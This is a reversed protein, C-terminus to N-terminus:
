EIVENAFALIAPPLNLGLARAAKLNVVFQFTSPQEIPLTSPKEGKLIRDVYTAARRFHECYNLSYSMLGGLEVFTREQSMTPLRLRASHDVIRHMNGLTVSDVLVILAGPPEKAMTAFATDVDEASRVGISDITVGLINGNEQLSRVDLQKGPNTPDHLVAIRRADTATEILELLKSIMAPFFNSVGTINSAPRALNTVIGSAVPDSVMTFVVPINSTARQMAQAAPTGSTVILNPTLDVLEAALAPASATNGENWRREIAINRGEIWGLQRLGDQFCEDRDKTGAATGGNLVAIRLINAGQQARAVLPWSAATAGLLTIFERRGLQIFRM